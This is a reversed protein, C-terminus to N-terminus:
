STKLVVKSVVLLRFHFFILVGTVCFFFYRVDCIDFTEACFPMRFGEYFAAFYANERNFPGIVANHLMEWGLSRHSAESRGNM